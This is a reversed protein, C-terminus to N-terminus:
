SRELGTRCAEEFVAMQAPPALRGLLGLLDGLAGPGLKQLTFAMHAHCGKEFAIRVSQLSLATSVRLAKCYEVVDAGLEQVHQGAMDEVVALLADVEAAFSEVPQLIKCLEDDPVDLGILTRYLEHIEPVRAERAVEALLADQDKRSYIRGRAE